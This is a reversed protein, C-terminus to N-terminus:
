SLMFSLEIQAKSGKSVCVNSHHFFLFISLFFCYKAWANFSTCTNLNLCKPKHNLLPKVLFQWHYSNCRCRSPHLTLEVNFWLTTMPLSQPSHSIWWVISRTVCESSNVIEEERVCVCLWGRGRKREADSKRERELEEERKRVEVATSKTACMMLCLRIYYSLAVQQIQNAPM